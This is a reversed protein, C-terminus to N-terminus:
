KYRDQLLHIWDVNEQGIEKPDMKMSGKWTHKREALPRMGDPKGVFFDQIHKEKRCYTSCAGSMQTEKIQDGSYHKNLAGIMFSRVIHNGGTEQEHM